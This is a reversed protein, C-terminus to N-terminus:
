ALSHSLARQRPLLHHRRHDNTPPVSHDFPSCTRYELDNNCYYYYEGTRFYKDRDARECGSIWDRAGAGEGERVARNEQLLFLSLM